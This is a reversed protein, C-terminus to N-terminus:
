GRIMALYKRGKEVDLKRRLSFYFLSKLFYFVSTYFRGKTNKMWAKENPLIKEFYKKDFDVSNIDSKGMYHILSARPEYVVKKGVVHRFHYCWQVDEYYMFFDEHLRHNPFYKLDDKRFMFCAGWVWDAEVPKEYNWADGLYYQARADSNMNGNIRFLERLERKISPFRGAVGQLVGDPFQLKGSTVGISSDSQMLEVLIGAVDNLFVTDSNLLLVYEGTSAAIGANNGKAFGVNNHLAILKIEPFVDKFEEASVESSGNDVLVIEYKVDHTHQIVSRICEVTLHFTNYNIIIISCKVM